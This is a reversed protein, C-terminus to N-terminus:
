PKRAENPRTVKATTAIMPMGCKGCIPVEGIPIEYPGINRTANCSMCRAVVFAKLERGGSAPTKATM